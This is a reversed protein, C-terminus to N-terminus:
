LQGARIQEPFVTLFVLGFSELPHQGRRFAAVGGGHPIQRQHVDISGTHRGIQLPRFGPGDIRCLVPVIGHEEANCRM